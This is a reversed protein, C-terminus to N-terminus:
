SCLVVSWSAVLEDSLLARASIYSWSCKVSHSIECACVFMFVEWYVTTVLHGSKALCFKTCQDIKIGTHHMQKSVYADPIEYWLRGTKGVSTGHDTWSSVPWLLQWQLACNLDLFLDVLAYTHPIHSVYLCAYRDGPYHWQRWSNWTSYFVEEKTLM